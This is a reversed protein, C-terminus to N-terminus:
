RRPEQDRMTQVVWRAMDQLVAAEPARGRDDLRSSAPGLTHGLGPLRRLTVQENGAAVLAAALAEGSRLPTSADNEGQLILVPMRLAGAQATAPPVTRGEAYIYCNGTPSFCFDVIADIAPAIETRPDLEGDGNGDIRSSVAPPAGFAAPEALLSAGLKAVMGGDGRQAAVLKAATVPGGDPGQAYPVGVEEVWSRVMERYPLGVPGQLVMAVVDDRQTALAAAIATGESWGYLISRRPSCQPMARAADLVTAADKTFQLTSQGRWFRADFRGPGKVFRKDYRVVAMGRAALAEAIQGFLAVKGDPGQMTCDMDHPGNGHILLVVPYPGPGHPGDTQPHLLEARSTWGGLDVEFPVREVPAVPPEFAAISDAPREGVGQCAASLLVAITLFPSCRRM